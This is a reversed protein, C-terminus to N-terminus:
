WVEAVEPLRDILRQLRRLTRAKGLVVAVDFVPPSVGKGTLALRLPHILKGATVGRQEALTRVAQETAAVDFPEITALLDRMERLFADTADGRLHKKIAESDYEIADDAV